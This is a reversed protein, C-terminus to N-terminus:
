KPMTPAVDAPIKSTDIDVMHWWDQWFLTRRFGVLWPQALDTFIRHLNHKAPAYAAIIRKSEEFLAQREPGHPIVEMREYLDDLPKYRFRVMNQGGIQKSHFRALAPQGDPSTASNGVEWMQYTGARASKLNEPWKGAKFAARIGIADLDKKRVEDVKRSQGDPQTNMVLVLPSGDPQDRWGDGDRDVYGYLDLLAKARAPDHDGGESKFSPTHGVTHPITYSQAVIAQNHRALRIEREASLGLSIARRLAVREPTYGGVVADDMNFMLYRIDARLMQYGQVGRKALNPALKSNPMAADIYEPPVEEILDYENNTFSLWRPQNEEIISVEVRDIMPLKRGKFRALLAQGEPDDAAPEADYTVHRYTPNRELVILSSRRWQKLRFPGTGVPHASIKDGYTQVVERAVGGFLDSGAILELLRPRPGETTLQLTYRDLAKLGEIPKDYDFPKKQDLSTQRLARLGVFAAQTDVTGWVPSKLTPDAFRKFAFVYDQAVLERPKGQFAPDEAFYIGPRVKITWVTFNANVEPMGLATLPKIKAPRALHDYSYLAEFIHPTVVRSYLDNIQAPDFGTEAVRFAYRLVKPPAAAPQQVNAAAQAAAQPQARAQEVPLWCALLAYGLPIIFRM